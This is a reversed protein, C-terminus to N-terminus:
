ESAEAESVESGAVLRRAVRPNTGPEFTAIARMNVQLGSFAAPGHLIVQTADTIQLTVATGSETTITVFGSADTATITGRVQRPSRAEIRIAQAQSGQLQYLARVLDDVRLDALTAPQGDRQIQTTDTVLLTLESGDQRRVIVTHASADVGGITGGAELPKQPPAPKPHAATSPPPGAKAATAPSGLMTLGSLLLVSALSTRPQM